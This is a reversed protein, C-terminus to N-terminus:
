DKAAQALVDALREVVHSAIFERRFHERSADGRRLAAEPDALEGFAAALGDVDDVGLLLPQQSCIYTGAQTPSQVRFAEAPWAAFALVLLTLGLIWKSRQM